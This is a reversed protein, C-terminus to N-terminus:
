LTLDKNKSFAFFLCLSLTTFATLISASAAAAGYNGRSVFIYTALTLTTSKASYLIISSSLETLITIWSLIAGAIIGNSMMPVTIRFLIKGKSIGLSEAAEEVSLPIQQLTAVSSRITYPIRRICIAIIMILVTGTLVIPKSNYTMVLSIGIVSGPIIYPIMSLTDITNNVINSRRVVLYSVLVAIGITLLLTLVGIYLTTPVASWMRKFFLLYNNLSYGRVFDSGSRSTKRFSTYILYVQPLFSVAVLVYSYLHIIINFFFKGNKKKIPHLANMKFSYSASLKKQVLFFIGTIIVAIVSIAAAFNHNSGSEGVYQKYIEVSFTRYGEGILLPTGFDAMARIFVMLSVALIAPMCLPLTIHFFKGDISAM